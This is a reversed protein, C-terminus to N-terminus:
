VKENKSKIMNNIVVLMTNNQKILEIEKDSIEEVVQYQSQTLHAIYGQDDKIIVQNVNTVRYVEYVKELSLNIFTNRRNIPMTKIDTPIHLLRILENVHPKIDFGQYNKLLGESDRLKFIDM